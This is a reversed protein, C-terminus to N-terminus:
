KFVSSVMLGTTSLNITSGEAVLEGGTTPSTAQTSIGTITSGSTIAFIAAQANIFDGATLTHSTSNTGTQTDYPGSGGDLMYVRTIVTLSGATQSPGTFTVAYSTTGGSTRPTNIYHIYLNVSSSAITGLQIGTTGNISLTFTSITQSAGKSVRSLAVMRQHPESSQDLSFTNSASSGQSFSAFSQTFSGGLAVATIAATRNMSIAQSVVSVM